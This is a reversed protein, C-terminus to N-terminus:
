HQAGLLVLQPYYTPVGAPLVTVTGHAINRWAATGFNDRIAQLVFCILEVCSRSINYKHQRLKYVSQAANPAGAARTRQGGSNGAAQPSDQDGNRGPIHSQTHTTTLIHKKNSIYHCQLACHFTYLPRSFLNKITNNASTVLTRFCM